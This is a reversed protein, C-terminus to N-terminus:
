KFELAGEQKEKGSKKKDHKDGHAIAEYVPLTHNIETSRRKYGEAMIEYTEKTLTRKKLYDIQANKLLDDIGELEAKLSRIKMKAARIRIRKFAFPASIIILLLLISLQWWYRTIFNKSLAMIDRSRRLNTMADELKLDTEKISAEAEEYREENFATEAKKLTEAAASTDAGSERYKMEKETILSLSDLINNAQDKRFKILESLMLVKSYNLDTKGYLSDPVTMALLNDLLNLKIISKEKSIDSKLNSTSYGIYYQRAQVLLDNLYLVTLNNDKMDNINKDAALLANLADTRSVEKPAFYVFNSSLSNEQLSFEESTAASIAASFLVSLLPILVTIIM